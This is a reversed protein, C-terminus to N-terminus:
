LNPANWRNALASDVKQMSRFKERYQTPTMGYEKKFVRLFYSLSEYQLNLAIDTIKLDSNLLMEASLALRRKNKYEVITCGTHKKFNRLITSPSEDFDKCLEKTSVNLYVPNNLTSILDDVYDPHSRSNSLNKNRIHALTLYLITDAASQSPSASCLQYALMQIFDAERADLHTIFCEPIADIHVETPFCRAAFNRFYEQEVCTVFHSAQMPETYLRHTSYPSLVLLTGASLSDTKRAYTHEYTGSLILVIEYIDSHRHMTSDVSHIGFMGYGGTTIKMNCFDSIQSIPLISDQHLSTDINNM